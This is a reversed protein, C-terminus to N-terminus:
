RMFREFASRLLAPDPHPLVGVYKGRGKPLPNPTPLNLSCQGNNVLQPNRRM